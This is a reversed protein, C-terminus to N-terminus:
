LRPCGSGTSGLILGQSGRPVWCTEHTPTGLWYYRILGHFFVAGMWHLHAIKVATVLNFLPINIDLPLGYEFAKAVVRLLVVDGRMM